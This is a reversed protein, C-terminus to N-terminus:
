PAYHPDGRAPLAHGSSLGALLSCSSRAHHVQLGVWFGERRGIGELYCPTVRESNQMEVM